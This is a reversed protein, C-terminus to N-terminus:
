RCPKQDTPLPWGLMTPMIQEARLLQETLFLQSLHFLLVEGHTM